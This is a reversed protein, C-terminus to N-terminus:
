EKLAPSSEILGARSAGGSLPNESFVPVKTIRWKKESERKIKMHFHLLHTTDASDKAEVWGAVAYQENGLDVACNAPNQWRDTVRGYYATKPRALYDRELFMQAMIWASRQSSTAVPEDCLAVQSTLGLCVVAYSIARVM